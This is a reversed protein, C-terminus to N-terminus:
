RRVEQGAATLGLGQAPPEATNPAFETQAPRPSTQPTELETPEPRPSTQPSELESGVPAGSPLESFRHAATQAHLESYRNMASPDVPEAPLEQVDIQKNSWQCQQHYYESPAKSQYLAQHEPSYAPPPSHGSFRAANAGAAAAKDQEVTLTAPDESESGDQKGKRRKRRCLFLVAIAIVAILAVGGGVAGGIVAGSVGSGSGSGSNTPAGTSSSSSGGTASIAASIAASNTASTVANVTAVVDSVSPRATSSPVTTSSLLHNLARFYDFQDTRNMFAPELHGVTCTGNNKCPDSNCCGWFTPGNMCTWFDTNGGCTGGPYKTYISPSVGAPRLSDGFCGNKCPDSTCCGVFTTGTECAYWKGGAPCFFDGPSAPTYGNESM